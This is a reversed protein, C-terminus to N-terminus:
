PLCKCHSATQVHVVCVLAGGTWTTDRVQDFPADIDGGAWPNNVGSWGGRQFFTENIPVNLVVNNPTDIYTQIVSQNWFLGYTHSTPRGFLPPQPTLCPSSNLVNVSEVTGVFALAQSSLM